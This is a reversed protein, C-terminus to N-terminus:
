PEPGAECGGEGGVEAMRWIVCERCPYSEDSLGQNKVAEDEPVKEEVWGGVGQAM